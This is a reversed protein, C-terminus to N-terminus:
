EGKMMSQHESITLPRVGRQRYRERLNALSARGHDSIYGWAELDILTSYYTNLEYTMATGEENFTLKNNPPKACSSSPM